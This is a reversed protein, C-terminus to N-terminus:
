HYNKVSEFCITLDLFFPLKQNVVDIMKQLEHISESLLVMDDAYLLLYWNLKRLEHSKCNQKILELEM